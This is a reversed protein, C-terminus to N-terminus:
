MMRGWKYPSWKLAELTPIHERQADHTEKWIDDNGTGDAIANVRDTEAKDLREKARKSKYKAENYARVNDVNNRCNTTM